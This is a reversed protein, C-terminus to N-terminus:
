SVILEVGGAHDLFFVRVKAVFVGAHKHPELTM